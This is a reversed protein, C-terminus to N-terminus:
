LEILKTAQVTYGRLRLEEVLDKDKWTSIPCEILRRNYADLEKENKDFQVPIRNNNIISLASKISRDQVQVEPKIENIQQAYTLRRHKIIDLFNLYHIPEPSAKKYLNMKDKGRKDVGVHSYIIFQKEKLMAIVQSYYKCKQDSMDNRFDMLTFEKNQVLYPNVLASIEKAMLKDREVDNLTQYNIKKILGSIANRCMPCKVKNPDETFSKAVQNSLIGVSGDYKRQLMGCRSRISYSGDTSSFSDIDSLKAYHISTKNMTPSTKILNAENKDDSYNDLFHENAEMAENRTRYANKLDEYRIKGYNLRAQSETKGIGIEHSYPMNICVWKNRKLQAILIETYNYGLENIVGLFVCSWVINSGWFVIYREGIILDSLKFINKVQM